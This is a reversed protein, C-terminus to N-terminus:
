IKGIITEVRNVFNEAKYKEKAINSNNVIYFQLKKNIELISDVISSSDKKYCEIGNIGNKFIDSIGGQDTTIIGCGMAMAELISIPQGENPYYTPLCFIHSKKLLEYKTEGQVVGYYELSDGLFNKYKNFEIELEPEINGAINLHFKYNMEKLKVCAKLLDLIGKSKMLNSLYLIEIVDEKLLSKQKQKLDEINLFYKSDVGNECVFIKKPPVIGEFMKELSYGLVIIGNCKEFYKKLIKKRNINLGDYMKRVFGGHFHLYVPKRKLKSVIIFPVYKLFGIYSQAPTIYVVDYNKFIIESSGKILPFISKFVKKFNFKGQSSLNSFEKDTNTDIIKVNHGKKQLGKKLMENAISLGTIPEPLPGIM